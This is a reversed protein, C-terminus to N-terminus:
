RVAFRHRRTSTLLTASASSRRSPGSALYHEEVGVNKEIRDIFRAGEVLRGAVPQGGLKVASPPHTERPLREYREHADARILASGRVRKGWLLRDSEDGVPEFRFNGPNRNFTWAMPSNQTVQNSSVLK